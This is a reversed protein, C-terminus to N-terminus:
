LQMYSCKVSTTYVVHIGIQYNGGSDGFPWDWKASLSHDVLDFLLIEGRFLVVFYLCFIFSLSLVFTTLIEKQPIGV